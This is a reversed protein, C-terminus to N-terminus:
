CFRCGRSFVIREVKIGATVPLDGGLSESRMSKASGVLSPPRPKASGEMCAIKPKLAETQIVSDRVFAIEERLM